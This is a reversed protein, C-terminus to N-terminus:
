VVSVPGMDGLVGWTVKVVVLEEGQVGVCEKWEICGVGGSEGEKGGGTKRKCMRM